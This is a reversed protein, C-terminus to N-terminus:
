AKQKSRFGAFQKQRGEKQKYKPNLIKYWHASPLYPESKKKAVIGELQLKEVGRVFEATLQKVFPVPLVFRKGEVLGALEKKRKLLNEAAINKGNLELLDFAMYYVHGRGHMLDQFNSYGTKQELVTLEGDLTASRVQLEEAIQKALSDFRNLPYGKRSWFVSHSPKIELLGRWGDYKPEFVWEGARFISLPQRRVDIPEFELPM